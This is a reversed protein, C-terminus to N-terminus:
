FLDSGDHRDNKGGLSVGKSSQEVDVTMKGTPLPSKASALSRVAISRTQASSRNGSLLHDASPTDTDSDSLEILGPVPRSRTPQRSTSARSRSPSSTPRPRPQARLVELRARLQDRNRQTIPPVSEGFSMLEQRLHQDTLSM